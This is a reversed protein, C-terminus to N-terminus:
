KRGQMFVPLTSLIDVREKLKKFEDDQEQSLAEELRKTHSIFAYLAIAFCFCVTSHINPFVYVLPLLIWIVSTPTEDWMKMFLADIM